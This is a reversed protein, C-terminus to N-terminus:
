RCSMAALPAYRKTSGFHRDTNDLQLYDKYALRVGEELSIRPQWGLEELRSVDLLKQPTGDPKTTDWEVEGEFGVVGAIVSALELITLDKGSGINFLHQSAHSREPSRTSDQMDFITEFHQLLCLCADALDDSYLFERRPSGSGWLTIAPKVTPDKPILPAPHGNFRAIRALRDYIDQPIPGHCEEDWKIAEWAGLSALKGLHFKRILVPLVHGNLLHYTDNPGYLNTPMVSLFRTGYQRNFAECLELGAIKALAYPENTPELPGTLLSEERLPQPALRPYICSSGLFVLGTVGSRWAAEVVNNQIKLNNLIFDAPYTQNAMIGGVKAAALFVYEPRETTFFRDVDSQNELDLEDHTRLLFNSYGQAVFRRLLASGVLGRHGAIFIRSSRNM